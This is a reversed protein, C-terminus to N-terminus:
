VVLSQEHELDAGRRFIEALVLLVLAVVILTGDVHFGGPVSLGSDAALGRRVAISTATEAVTQIGAIALLLTGLKRLRGVNQADFTAGDQIRQLIRRLNHLFLLMLAGAAATYIWLLALLSWPISSIPLKLEGRVDDLMLPAQGWAARVVTQLDPTAVPLELKYYFVPEAVGLVKLVPLGVLVLAGGLLMLHYAFSTLATLLKVVRDPRSAHM